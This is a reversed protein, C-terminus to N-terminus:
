STVAVLPGFVVVGFDAVAVQGAPLTTTPPPNVVVRVVPVASRLPGALLVAQVACTRSLWAPVGFQVRVTVAIQTVARGQDVRADVGRSRTGAPV